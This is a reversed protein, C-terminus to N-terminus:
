LVTISDTRCNGCLELGPTIHASEILYRKKCLSHVIHQGSKGEFDGM